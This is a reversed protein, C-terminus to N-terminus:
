SALRAFVMEDILKGDHLIAQKLTGELVFGCKEMVRISATNPASVPNFIRTISTTEFVEEVFRNVAETAIGRGWFQPSLWYGLEATHAYERERLYVGVSGVFQNGVHIAKSLANDKCGTNIWWLADADLYPQPINSSLFRTVDAQNLYHVLESEHQKKFTQLSILM